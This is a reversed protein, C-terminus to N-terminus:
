DIKIKGFNGVPTRWHGNSPDFLRDLRFKKVIQIVTQNRVASLRARSDFTLLCRFLGFAQAM